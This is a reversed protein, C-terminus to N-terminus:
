EKLLNRSLQELSMITIAEPLPDITSCVATKYRSDLDYLSITFPNPAETIVRFRGDQRRSISFSDLPISLGGGVAKVYSEKMTWIAYFMELKEHEETDHLWRAESKTFFRDAIGLDIPKVQEIDVGVAERSVACLVWDGSHSLNYHFGPYGFLYPKGFDNVGFDMQSPLLGLKDRALARILTDSVLARLADEYRRFAQIKMQKEPSVVSLLLNWESDPLRDPLNVAYLEVGGM